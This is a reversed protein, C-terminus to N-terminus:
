STTTIRVWKHRGIRLVSGDELVFDDSEIKQGNLQIGGQALLRKAESRSGILNYQLLLRTLSMRVIGDAGQIEISQIEEPTNKLQYVNEFHTSALHSAEAGHFNQVLHKALTKKVDLPNLHNGEVEAKMTMLDPDPVDTLVELYTWVLQDPISMVKGYMDVPSEEIGIYNDLSKSMKASGDTGAIVPVFFCSQPSYGWSQQLQRGALVNFKQDTGGFEVDSQIAVSDYAQLLPYMLESMSIPHGQAYRMSFDERALIQATTFVSALKVVDELGFKGFWESQWVVETQSKDVVKFFQTTYTKANEVVEDRSIMPRTASRGSPDGIQATWDGVILIVKHGVNQLQRLKRLGVVHGLHIDPKSPDFGMKLRLPKGDKLKELFEKEPIIEAVGRKLIFDMDVTNSL